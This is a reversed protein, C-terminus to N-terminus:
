NQSRSKRKDSFSSMLSESKRKINVNTIKVHIQIDDACFHNTVNHRFRFIFLQNISTAFLKSGLVSGQPVSFLLTARDSIVENVM